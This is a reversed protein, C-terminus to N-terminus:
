FGVYTDKQSYQTGVLGDASQLQHIPSNANQALPILSFMNPVDGLHSNEETVAESAFPGLERWVVGPIRKLIREYGRTARREGRISKTIYQQVTYGAFRAMAPIERKVTEQEFNEWRDKCTEVARTYGKQWEKLWSSINDVGAMSFIDCGMPTVFCD